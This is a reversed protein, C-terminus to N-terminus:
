ERVDLDLVVKVDHPETAFADPWRALPMRRTILRALWSPDAQDLAVVAQEYHQRAAGVSGFVVDNELVLERNIAGLDIPVSRGGTSLGTLCVVANRATRGLVTSVVDTAGSCEMVVEPELDQSIPGCHYSAGLDAVLQPKPGEDVIDVVHVEHGRQVALLAALLGIPGAGTVLVRRRGPADVVDLHEVREWAKAVVSTPEVLVGCIGLRAPVAVLRDAPVAWRECAFGDIGRIGHEVYRGNTCLDSRGVACQRCPRPDPWRVLAAVHDGAAWGSGGADLVSGLSEHGLVLRSRGAPAQGHHGALIEHDTGCVGVALGQVVVQGSGRLPVEVDELRGSGTQRLEVTLARVVNTM